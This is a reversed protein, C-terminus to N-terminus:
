FVSFFHHELFIIFWYTGNSEEKHKAENELKEVVLIINLIYIVYM